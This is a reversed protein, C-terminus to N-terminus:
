RTTTSAAGNAGGYRRGDAHHQSFILELDVHHVLTAATPAACASATAATPVAPRECATTGAAGGHAPANRWYELPHLPHASPAGGVASCILAARRRVRRDLRVPASVARGSFLLPQPPTPDLRLGTACSWSGVPLFERSQSLAVALRRGGSAAAAGGAGGAAGVASPAVQLVVQLNALQMGRRDSSADLFITDASVGGM